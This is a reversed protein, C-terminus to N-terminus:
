QYQIDLKSIQNDNLEISKLWAIFDQKAKETDDGKLTVLVAFHAPVKPSFATAVSFTASDYPSNNTVYIDPHQEREQKTQENELEINRTDGSIQPTTTPGSSTFSYIRNKGKANAFYISYRYYTGTSWQNKPTIILKNGQIKEQREAAPQMYLKIEGERISRTFTIEILASPSVNTAGDKLSTTQVDFEQPNLIPTSTISSVIITPSPTPTPNHNQLSRRIALTITILLLLFITLGVIIKKTNM